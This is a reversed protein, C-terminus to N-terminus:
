KESKKMSNNSLIESIKRHHSGNNEKKQVVHREKEVPKQDVDMQQGDPNM